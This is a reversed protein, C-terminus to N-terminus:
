VRERCSARGIEVLADIVGPLTAAAFRQPRPSAEDERQHQQHQAHEQRAGDAEDVQDAAAVAQEGEDQEGDIDHRERRDPQRADELSRMRSVVINRLRRGSANRRAIRSNSADTGPAASASGGAPNTSCTSAKRWSEPAGPMAMAITSSPLVVSDCPHPTRCSPSLASTSASVIKAVPDVPLANVTAAIAVSTSWPLSLHSSLTTSWM